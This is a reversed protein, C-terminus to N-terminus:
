DSALLKSPMYVVDAHHPTGPAAVLFMAVGPVVIAGAPAPFL